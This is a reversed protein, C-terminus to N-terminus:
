THTASGEGRPDREGGEGRPYVFFGMGSWLGVHTEYRVPAGVPQLLLAAPSPCAYVLAGGFSEEAAM